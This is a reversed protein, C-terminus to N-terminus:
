EPPFIRCGKENIYGRMAKPITQFADPYLFLGRFLCLALKMKKTWGQTPLSDMRKSDCQQGMM